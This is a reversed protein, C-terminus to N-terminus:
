EFPEEIEKRHALLRLDTAAKHSSAAIGALTDLIQADIKRSYTQSTIAYTGAFGMKKAVAAELQRVKAHDGHFLELFSAQTGTTGKVSRALLADRRHEVEALDLALDYAWLCARRGVTTPQAPQLHTYSLTPLDCHKKAFDALATITAALRAAILGLAERILI